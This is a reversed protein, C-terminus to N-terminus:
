FIHPLEEAQIEAGVNTVCIQVVQEAPAQDLLTVTTASHVVSYKRANTLLEQM